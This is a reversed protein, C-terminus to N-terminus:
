AGAPRHYLANIREALEADLAGTASPDLTVNVYTAGFNINQPHAAGAAALASLADVFDRTQSYREFGFRRFLIAQQGRSEWGAPLETM